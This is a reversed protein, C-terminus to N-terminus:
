REAWLYKYARVGPSITEKSFYETWDIWKAHGDVFIVPAKGADCRNLSGSCLSIYRQPAPRKLRMDWKFYPGFTQSTHRGYGTWITYYNFTADRPAGGGYKLLWWDPATSETLMTMRSSDGVEGVGRSMTDTQILNTWPNTRSGGAIGQWRVGGGEFAYYTDRWSTAGYVESRPPMGFSIYPSVRRPNPVEHDQYMPSAFIQWNKIYPQTINQFSLIRRTGITQFFFESGDAVSFAPPLIDNEDASYMIVGLGQQKMNSMYTLRKASERAQSLVPFLIAALIAIIAIVVLLEILTFGRRRASYPSSFTAM